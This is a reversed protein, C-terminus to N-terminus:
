FQVQKGKLKFINEEKKVRKILTETTESFDERQLFTVSQFVNDDHYVSRRKFSRTVPRTIFQMKGRSETASVLKDRTEIFKKEDLDQELCRLLNDALPTTM